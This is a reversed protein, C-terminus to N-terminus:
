VWLSLNNNIDIIFISKVKENNQYSKLKTM